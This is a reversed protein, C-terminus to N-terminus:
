LVFCFFFFFFYIFGDQSEYIGADIYVFINFSFIGRLSVM